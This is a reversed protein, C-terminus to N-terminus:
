TNNVQQYDSAKVIQNAYTSWGTTTKWTEYLADPVIIQFTSNTGQFMSTGFIPVATAESFDVVQLNTCNWFTQYFSTVVTTSLKPFIAHTLSTCGECMMRFGNAGLTTISSFEIRRLSTCKRFTSNFGTPANTVNPFSASTLSTCNYFTSGMSATGLTTLNTFDIAQLSTCGAFAGYLAYNGVTTLNPLRISTLGTNGNFKGILAGYYIGTNQVYAISADPIEIIDNSELICPTSPFQIVGSANVSGLVNDIGVNYKTSGGGSPINSIKTPMQEPTMKGTVGKARIADAINQFTQRLTAM